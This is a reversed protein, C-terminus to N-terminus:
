KEVEKKLEAIRNKVFESGKEIDDKYALNYVGNLSFKEGIIVCIKPWKLFNNDQRFAKYTGDIYLPIIPAKSKIGIYAAGSLFPNLEGNRSLKGEPFVGVIRHQSLLNAAQKLAEKNNGKGPEVKFFPVRKAFFSFPKIRFVWSAVLWHIIRNTCCTVVFPDLLSFHNAVLVAPGNQPINEKGKIELRFFLKLIVFFLGQSARYICKAIDM